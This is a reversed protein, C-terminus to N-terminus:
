RAAAALALGARPRALRSAPRWPPRRRRAARAQAEEQRAPKRRAAPRGAPQLEVFVPNPVLRARRIPPRIEAAVVRVPVTQPQYGPLSFSVTFENAAVALSCPTRCTQGTLDQSRRRGARIRIAHHNGGAGIELGAYRAADLEAHQLM